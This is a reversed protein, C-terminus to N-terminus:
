LIDLGGEHIIANDDQFVGNRDHFWHVILQLHNRLNMMYTNLVQSWFSLPM